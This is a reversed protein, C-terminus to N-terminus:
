RFFMISVTTQDQAIAIGRLFNAVEIQAANGSALTSPFFEVFSEPAGPTGAKYRRIATKLMSAAVLQTSPQAGLFDTTGLLRNGVVGAAFDTENSSQNFKDRLATRDEACSSAPRPVVPRIPTPQVGGASTSLGPPPKDQAVAKQNGKGTAAKKSAPAAVADVNARKGSPNVPAQPVSNSSSSALGQGRGSQRPPDGARQKGTGRMVVRYSSDTFLSSFSNTTYISCGFVRCMSLVEVEVQLLRPSLQLYASTRPPTSPRITVTFM